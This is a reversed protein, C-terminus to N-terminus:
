RIWDEELEDRAISLGELIGRNFADEPEIMSRAKRVHEMAAVMEALLPQNETVTHVHKILREIEALAVSAGESKSKREREQAIRRQIKEIGGHRVEPLSDNM